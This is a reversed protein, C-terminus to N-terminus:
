KAEGLKLDEIVRNLQLSIERTQQTRADIELLLLKGLDEAPIGLESGLIEGRQATETDAGILPFQDPVLFVYLKDGSWWFKAISRQGLSSKSVWKQVASGDAQMVYLEREGGRLFAIQQGDPSWQPAFGEALVRASRTELDLHYIQSSALGPGDLGDTATQIYSGADSDVKQYRELSDYLVASQDPSLALTHSLQNTETHIVEATETTLNVQVVRNQAIFSVPPAKKEALAASWLFMADQRESLLLTNESTWVLNRITGQLGGELVPIGLGTDVQQKLLGSAPDVIQVEWHRQENMVVCAVQSSDSSWSLGNFGSDLYRCAEREFPQGLHSRTQRVALGISNRPAYLIKESNPSWLHVPSSSVELLRDTLEGANADFLYSSTLYQGLTQPKGTPYGWGLLELSLKKGDPSLQADVDIRPIEFAYDPSTPPNLGQCAILSLSAFFLLIKHTRM